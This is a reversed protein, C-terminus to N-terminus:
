FNLFLKKDRLIAKGDKIEYIKDCNKITSLRHAVIILTKEGQLADIAEMVANETTNDLASTAEDLILIDPNHYLARAIAIRQRQGGSFKVGHEGVITNLGKPLSEVFSKLQAQELVKWIRNDDIESVEEGFAINARISDDTLYVNQPVYGVTRAWNQPIDFIDIGDILIKGKQPRLLGLIVDALTTKGAGSEGIFAVAEGKCIEINLGDLVKSGSNEYEWDVKEVSVKQEFSHKEEMLNDQNEIGMSRANTINNYASDLSVKYYSLNNFSNSISSISPLLRIAAMAFASLTTILTSIQSIDRARIGVIMIIGCIFFTEILREPVKSLFCKTRDCKQLRTYSEDYKKIFFNKKRLVMIEKIGNIAEYAIKTKKIDEKRFEEGAQRMKGKMVVVILIVSVMAIGILGVAMVTDTFLLFVGIFAFTLMQALLNFIDDLVFFISSIDAGIGRLIEASNVNIFFTYPRKMYAKLMEVSLDKQLKCRFSIQIYSSFLLMANKLVYICILVGSVLLIVQYSSNINLFVLINHVIQNNTFSEIDLLVSVFPIISSVGLLEFASSVLILVFVLICQKRQRKNLVDWVEKVIKCVAKINNM